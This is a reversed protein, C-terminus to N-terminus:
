NERERQKVRGRERVCVREILIDKVRVRKGEREEKKEAESEKRDETIM